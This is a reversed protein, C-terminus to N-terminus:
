SVTKRDLHNAAAVMAAGIDRASGADFSVTYEGHEDPVLLYVRGNETYVVCSREDAKM